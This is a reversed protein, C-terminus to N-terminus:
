PKFLGIIEVKQIINSGYLTEFDHRRIKKHIDVTLNETNLAYLAFYYHHLGTGPPPCPGSYFSVDDDNLGELSGTPMTHLSAGEVIERVSGPISYVAWHVYPHGVVAIADIDEM